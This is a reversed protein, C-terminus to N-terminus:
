VPPASDGVELAKGALFGNMRGSEIDRLEVISLSDDCFEDRREVISLSDDCLEDLRELMIPAGFFRGDVGFSGKICFSTGTPIWRSCLTRKGLKTIAGM